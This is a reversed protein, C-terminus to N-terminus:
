LSEPDLHNSFRAISSSVKQPNEITSDPSAGVPNHFRGV